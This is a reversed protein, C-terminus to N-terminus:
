LEGFHPEFAKEKIADRPCIGRQIEAVMTGMDCVQKWFRCGAQFGCYTVSPGISGQAVLICAWGGGFM